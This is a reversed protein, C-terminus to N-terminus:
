GHNRVYDLMDREQHPWTCHEALRDKADDKYTDCHWQMARERLSAPVYVKSRFHVLTKGHVTELSLVKRPYMGIPANPNSLYAKLADDRASRDHQHSPPTLSRRQLHDCSLL